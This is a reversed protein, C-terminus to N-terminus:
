PQQQQETPATLLSRLNEGNPESLAWLKGEKSIKGRKRLRFLATGVAARSTERELTLREYIDNTTMERESLISVVADIMTGRKKKPPADGDSIQTRLANSDAEDLVSITTLFREREKDLEARKREIEDLKSKAFIRYDTM